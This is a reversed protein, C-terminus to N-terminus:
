IKSDLQPVCSITFRYKPIAQKKSIQLPSSYQELIAQCDFSNLFSITQPLSLVITNKSEWGFTKLNDKYFFYVSAWQDTTSFDIVASDSCPENKIICIKRRPEFTWTQSNPYKPISASADQLQKSFNKPPTFILLYVIYGIGTCVLVLILLTIFGRRM